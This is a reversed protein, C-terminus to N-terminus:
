PANCAVPTSWTHTTATPVQAMLVVEGNSGLMWGQAEVLSKPQSNNLLDRSVTNLTAATPTQVSTGLDVLAANVNIAESPTPPLGGRGTIVFESTNTAINTDAACGQAVLNSVDVPQEPLSVLGRSPEDDVVTIEVVGDIGQASSATIASDPSLFFGQTAIRINGGSGTFANATVASNRTAFFLESSIDINGGNGGANATGATATISSNNTLAVNKGRLSIQGGAGQTTSTAITGQKDLSISPATVNIQGADAIAEGQVRALFGSAAGDNDVRDPTQQLRSNYTRDSGSISVSNTANVTINGAMGRDFATTLVQGGNTATVNAAKVTINGGPAIGRTRASIVAGDLISLNGTNVQISGGRGTANTDTFAFLGSSTTSPIDRLLITANPNTGFLTVSESANILINGANGVGNTSTSISGGATINLSRANIQTNGADGLGTTDNYIASDALSVTDATININGARGAEDATNSFITAGDSLSVTNAQINVEGGGNAFGIASTTIASNEGILSVFNDVNISVSGASGGEYTLTYINSSNELLLSSANIQIDGGSGKYSSTSVSAFNRLVLDNDVQILVKGANGEGDASARLNSGEGLRLSAANIEINGANGIAGFTVESAINSSIIEISEDADLTINGLQNTIAEFGTGAQIYSSDMNINKANIAISGNGSGLTSINALNLTIDGKNVTEPFALTFNGKSTNALGINGIGIVGGLKIHGDPAYLIGSNVNIDGGLLILSQSNNVALSGQVEIQSPSPTTIQNFLLASPNITLLEPNNAPSTLLNGQNDFQIADATTVIFSGNLNVSSNPGFIIGKPNILFLNANGTVSLTGFINSLNEGTVRTIINTVGPDIFTVQQGPNINFQSFSHFLNVGAQTGGTIECSAACAVPLTPTTGDPTIQALVPTTLIGLFAISATGLSHISRKM